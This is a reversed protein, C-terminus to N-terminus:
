LTGNLRTRLKQLEIVKVIKLIPLIMANPDRTAPVTIRSSVFRSTLVEYVHLDNSRNIRWSAQATVYPQFRLGSESPLALLLDM